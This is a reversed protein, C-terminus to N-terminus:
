NSTRRTKLMPWLRYICLTISPASLNVPGAPAEVVDEPLVKGHLPSPVGPASGGAGGWGSAPRSSKMACHRHDAPAPCRGGGPNPPSPSNSSITRKSPSTTGHDEVPRLHSRPHRLLTPREGIRLPVPLKSRRSPMQSPAPKDHHTEEPAKM